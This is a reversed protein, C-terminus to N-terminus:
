ASVRIQGILRQNHEVLRQLLLTRGDPAAPLHKHGRHTLRRPVPPFLRHQLGMLVGPLM